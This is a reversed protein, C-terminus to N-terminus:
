IVESNSGHHHWHILNPVLQSSPKGSLCFYAESLVHEVGNAAFFFFFSLTLKIHSFAVFICKQM